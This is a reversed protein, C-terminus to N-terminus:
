TRLVCLASLSPPRPPASAPRRARLPLPLRHPSRILAPHVLALAVLLALSVALCAMAIDCALAPTGPDANTRPTLAAATVTDRPGSHTVPDIGHHPMDGGSDSGVAAVPTATMTPSMTMASGTACHANQIAVIGALVALVVLLRAIGARRV